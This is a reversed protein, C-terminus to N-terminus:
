CQFYQQYDIIKQKLRQSLYENAQHLNEWILMAEQHYSRIKGQDWHKPPVQLNTTRDCMKVMWIEPPQQLIRMLSDEMQAQKSPLNTNKTLALVGDAVDIGFEKKLDQYGFGTDEIVDHLVACQILLDPYIVKGYCITTMAEMAVAGLHNLYPIDSGPMKQTKHAFSVFNWAQLYKEPNWIIM